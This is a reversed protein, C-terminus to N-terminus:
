ASVSLEEPQISGPVFGGQAHPRRFGVEALGADSVPRRGPSHRETAIRAARQVTARAQVLSLSM